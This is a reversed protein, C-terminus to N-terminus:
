ISFWQSTKSYLADVIEPKDEGPLSDDPIRGYKKQLLMVNAYASRQAALEARNPSFTGDAYMSGMTDKEYIPILSLIKWRGARKELRYHFRIHASLDIIDSDYAYRCEYMALCEAVAKSGNKWVLTNFVKHKVPIVSASVTATYSNIDGKTWCDTVYGDDFYCSRFADWLGCDMCYREYEVLERINMKDAVDEMTNVGMQCQYFMM